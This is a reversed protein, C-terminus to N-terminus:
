WFSFSTMWLNLLIMAATLLLSLLFFLNSVISGTLAFYHAIIPSATAVLMALTTQYCVPQLLLYVVLFLTQSVYIYLIMRVRIKDDYKNRLFHVLGTLTMVGIVALSVQQGFPMSVLAQLGQSDPTYMDRLLTLFSDTGDTLFCWVAYIWYPVFLGLMGAWFVRWTMARLFGALYFVYCVAMLMMVPACFSGIGLMLFAHFALAEPHDQQYCRFLLLYSLCLFAAALLPADIPHMFPLGAVLVMWVSCMMRTRIRIIHQRANTEMIFYTTLGCLALGLASRVTFQGQPLWWLAAALATCLPFTWESGAVKNQLRDHVIM